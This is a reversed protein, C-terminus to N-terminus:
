NNAPIGVTAQSQPASPVGFDIMDPDVPFTWEENSTVANRRDLGVCVGRVFQFYEEASVQFGHSQMIGEVTPHGFAMDVTAFAQVIRAADNMYKEGDGTGTSPSVSVQAPAQAQAQAPQQALQPQQEMGAKAPDTCEMPRTEGEVWSKCILPYQDGNTVLMVKAVKMPSNEVPEIWIDIVAGKKLDLGLAQKHWLETATWQISDGVNVQVGKVQPGIGPATGNATKIEVAELVLEYTWQAGFTNGNNERAPSYIYNDYPISFRYKSGEQLKSAGVYVRAM